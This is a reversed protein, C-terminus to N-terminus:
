RATFRESGFKRAKEVLFATDADGSVAKESDAAPRVNTLARDKGGSEGITVAGGANIRLIQILQLQKL